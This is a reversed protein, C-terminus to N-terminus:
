RLAGSVRVLTRGIVQRTTYGDFAGPLDALDVTRQVVTGLSGGGLDAALRAWARDRPEVPCYTSNIGLLNVGRLIFPMVTTALGHGGALGVSAINGLPQTTACLWALSGGGVNDIAGAWRATELPRLNSPVDGAPVIEAAGLGRLYDAAHPKGTLAAVRYGRRALLMVAISGVGGTAGTVVVPGAAPRQGNHEMHDIALAATFGATGIAMADRLTLEPPLPVIWDGRVVAFDSYGGDHEEGLGCGVVIVPDGARYREDASATVVGALDIGATLPLRRMIKGAGTVALADKFNIDSWAVRVAVDGLGLDSAAPSAAAELRAIVRGNESRCRYALATM